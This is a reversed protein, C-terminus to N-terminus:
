MNDSVAQQNNINNTDGYTPRREIVQYVVPQMERKKFNVKGLSVSLGVSLDFKNDGLNDRHGHGDFDQFTTLGGLEATLHLRDTLHYKAQVGYNITFPTGGIDSNHILGCGVYPILDFRQDKAKNHRFSMVNYMLDAHASHAKMSTLDSGKIQYGQYNLRLGVSPTLWKGGYVHINPTLRDFLDGCGMPSGVFASVGGQIGIFWNGSYSKQEEDYQIYNVKEISSPPNNTEDNARKHTESATIHTTALLAAVLTMITTKM